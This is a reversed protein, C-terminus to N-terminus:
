FATRNVYILRYRYSDMYREIYGKDVLSSIAKSITGKNKNYRKAFFENGAHCKRKKGLFHMYAIDSFILKAIDTLDHDEKVKMECYFFGKYDLDNENM